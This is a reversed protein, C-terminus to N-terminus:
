FGTYQINSERMLDVYVACASYLSALRKSQKSMLSDAERKSLLGNNKYNELQHIRQQIRLCDASLRNLTVELNKLQSTAMLNVNSNNLIIDNILIQVIGM